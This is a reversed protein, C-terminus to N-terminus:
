SNIGFLYNGVTSVIVALWYFGVGIMLAIALGAVVAKVIQSGVSDTM